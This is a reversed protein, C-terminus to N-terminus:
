AAQAARAFQLPTIGYCRKFHKNLASQDYFGVAAAVDAPLASQRLQRCAEGLRVQTLCAHPTLGVTRKFLGILQFPSLGAEGALTKLRLDAACDDRIRAMVKGVLVRDRPAMGVCRHGSGHREFLEGFTAVLLERKRFVDRGFL